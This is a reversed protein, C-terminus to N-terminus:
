ARAAEGARFRLFTELEYPNLDLERVEEAVDLIEVPTGARIEDLGDISAVWEGSGMQREKITRAMRALNHNAVANM